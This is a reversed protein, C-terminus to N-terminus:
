RRRRCRCAREEVLDVHDGVRRGRVRVARALADDALAARSACPSSCLRPRAAPASPRAVRPEQVTVPERRRTLCWRRAATLVAAGGDRGALLASRGRDTPMRAPRELRRRAHRWVAGAIAFLVAAPRSCGRRAPPAGRRRPDRGRAVHLEAGHAAVVAGHAGRRPGPDGSPQGLPQLCRDGRHRRRCDRRRRHRRRATRPPGGMPLPEGLRLARQNAEWRRYSTLALAAGLVIPPLAVLLRAVESQFEILQGAALGGGILALSTRIWALYTRENALTFRPDPEEGVTTSTLRRWRVTRAPRARRPRRRRPAGGERAQIRPEGRRRPLRDEEVGVLHGPRRRRHDARDGARADPRAPTGTLVFTKGALPGEGPPPGESEFRLGLARLEAILAQM